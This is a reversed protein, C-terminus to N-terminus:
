FALRLGFQIHRPGGQGLVANGSDPTNRAFGFGGASGITPNVNPSGAPSGFNGHNFLNFFETRFELKTSERLRWNKAVAMDVNKFGPGYFINRGANGYTGYAPPTLVGQGRVYCGNNELARLALRQQTPNGVYPAQAADNCLQQIPAPASAFATCGALKGYCPIPNNDSNFASRPGQYNWGQVIGSNPSPVVANLNEGTGTWDNRTSDIPGWPFGGQLAL